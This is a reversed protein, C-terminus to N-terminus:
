VIVNLSNVEECIGNIKRNMALAKKFEVAYGPTKM